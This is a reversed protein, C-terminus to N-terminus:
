FTRVLQEDDVVLVYQHRNVAQPTRQRTAYLGYAYL